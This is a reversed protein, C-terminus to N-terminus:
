SSGKVVTLCFSYLIDRGKQKNTLEFRMCIIYKFKKSYNNIEQGQESKNFSHAAVLQRFVFLHKTVNESISLELGIEWYCIARGQVHCSISFSLSNDAVPKQM